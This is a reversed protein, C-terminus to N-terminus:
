LKMICMQYYLYLLLPAGRESDIVGACLVYVARKCLTDYM